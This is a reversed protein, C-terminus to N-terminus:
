NCRGTLGVSGGRIGTVTVSCTKGDVEAEATEGVALVQTDVGNIALRADGDVVGSVFARLAGDALMVAQGPQASVGDAPAANGDCDSSLAVGAATVQAVGVRCTGGDHRVVVSEGAGIESSAGNISLVAGDATVRRVFARVAGDAFLATQGAGLESGTKPMAVPDAVPTPASETKAPAPRTAAQKLAEAQSAIRASIDALATKMAESQESATGSIAGGISDKLEALQAGFSGALDESASAGEALKAELSEIRASLADVASSHAASSETIPALARSMADNLKDDVSSNGILVGALLGVVAGGIGVIAPNKLLEM